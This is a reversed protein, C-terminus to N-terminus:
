FASGGRYGNMVGWWWCASNPRICCYCGIFVGRYDCLARNVIGFASIFAIFFEGDIVISREVLTVQLM